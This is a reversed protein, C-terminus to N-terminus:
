RWGDVGSKDPGPVLSVRHGDTCKFRRERADPRKGSLSAETMSQSCFPCLVNYGAHNRIRVVKVHTLTEALSPSGGVYRLVYETATSLLNRRRGSRERTFAYDVFGCMLCEMEDYGMVMPTSCRRCLSDRRQDPAQGHSTTLVLAFGGFYIHEATHRFRSPRRPTQYERNSGPSPYM